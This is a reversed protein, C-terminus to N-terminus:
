RKTVSANPDRIADFATSSNCDKEVKTCAQTRRYALYRVIEEKFQNITGKLSRLTAERLMANECPRNKAEEYRAELRALKSQTNALEVDDKLDM